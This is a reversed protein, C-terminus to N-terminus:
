LLPKKTGFNDNVGVSLSHIGGALDGIEMRSFMRKMHSMNKRMLVKKAILSGSLRRSPM